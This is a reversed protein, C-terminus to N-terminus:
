LPANKSKPSAARTRKPPTTDPPLLGAHLAPAIAELLELVDLLRVAVAAPAREGTKWKRLTYVPVGLYEAARAESLNLRDMTALIRAAFVTTKPPNTTTM